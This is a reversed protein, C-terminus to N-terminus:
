CVKLIESQTIVQESEDKSEIQEKSPSAIGKPRKPSTRTMKYTQLSGVFEDVRMLDVNKSEEITIVKHRFIEPLSRM